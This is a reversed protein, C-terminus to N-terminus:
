SMSRSMTFLKATSNINIFLTKEKYVEKKLKVLIVLINYHTNTKNTNHM